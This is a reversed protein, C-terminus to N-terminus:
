VKVEEEEEKVMREVMVVTSVRASTLPWVVAVLAECGHRRATGARPPAAFIAVEHAAAAPWAHVLTTGHRYRRWRRGGPKM